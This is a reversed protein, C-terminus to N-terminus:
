YTALQDNQITALMEAAKHYEKTALWEGIARAQDLNHLDSGLFEIMENKCLWWAIEKIEKGYYGALSLLNVQFHCGNNHLHRYIEKHAHYYRYREPHALVPQFGKLMLQFLMEDLDIPAQMFSNEVLLRQGPLPIFASEGEKLLDRFHEDMRYEASYRIKIEIGEQLMREELINYAADISEKTNEYTDAIVHPTAFIQKIGWSQLAKLLAISSEPNQSGDDIGPLVHAHLDTNYFLTSPAKEKHFWKM